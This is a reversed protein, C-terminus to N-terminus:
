FSPRIKAREYCTVAKKLNKVADLLKIIQRKFNKTENSAKIWIHKHFYNAKVKHM